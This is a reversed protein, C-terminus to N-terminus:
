HSAGPAPGLADTIKQMAGASPMPMVSQITEPIGVVKLVKPDNQVGMLGSRFGHREWAIAQIEKDSLAELLKAGKENLAILPHSSWVTPKPYLIRTKKRLIGLYEENAIGFEVLQNEYGVIIPKAGMGTKLYQEFLDGSSSEMYGLRGYARKLTPLVKAVSADDVVDGNTINALLGFFMSGSNSRTPDTCFVSVRGYLQPLGISQWSAGDNVLKVLRALDIYYCGGSSSTLGSKALADAVADWSYLVIPSNFVIQSKLLKGGRAKYFELAVQSSPWLFDQGTVDGKVMEISGAKTYNVTLGYKKRLLSKAREDELFGIKEGGVYGKVVTEPKSGPWSVEGGKGRFAQTGLWVAIAVVILIVLGALRKM